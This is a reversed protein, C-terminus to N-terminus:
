VRQILTKLCSHPLFSLSFMRLNMLFSCPASLCNLQNTDLLAFPSVYAPSHRKFWDISAKTYQTRPPWTFTHVLMRPSPPEPSFLVALKECQHLISDPLWVMPLAHFPILQRYAYCLSTCRSKAARGSRQLHGKTHHNICLVNPYLLLSLWAVGFMFSSNFLSTFLSFFFPFNRRLSPLGEFILGDTVWRIANVLFCRFQYFLFFSGSVIGM